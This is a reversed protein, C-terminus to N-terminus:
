SCAGFTWFMTGGIVAATAASTTTSVQGTGLVVRVPTATSTAYMTVCGITASSTATNSTTIDLGGAGGSLTVDGTVALTSLLTAAGTAAFAGNVTSSASSLFGTIGGTTTFAGVVTSSGVAVYGASMTTLGTLTSAGTVALTGGTSVNTSITTSGQVMVAGFLLVVAVSIGLSVLSADRTWNVMNKM